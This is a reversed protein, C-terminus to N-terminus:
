DDAEERRHNQFSDHHHTGVGDDEHRHWESDYVHNTPFPRRVDHKQRNAYRTAPISSFYQAIQKAEEDTIPHADYAEKMSFNAPYTLFRQLEQGQSEHVIEALAPARGGQTHCSICARGGNRFSQQGTFLREGVSGTSGINVPATQGPHILSGSSGSSARNSPSLNTAAPFQPKARSANQLYRVLGDVESPRLSGAQAQMREVNARLAQPPWNQVVRLDPGSRPGGGITHCSSCRTNFLSASDSQALVPLPGIAIILLCSSLCSSLRTLTDCCSMKLRALHTRIVDITDCM